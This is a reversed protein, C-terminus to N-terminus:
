MQLDANAMFWVEPKKKNIKKRGPFNKLTKNKREKSHENLPHPINQLNKDIKTKYLFM